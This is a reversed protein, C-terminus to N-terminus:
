QRWWAPEDVADFAGACGATGAAAAVCFDGTFAAVIRAAIPIERSAAAAIRLFYSKKTKAFYLFVYLVPEGSQTTYLGPVTFRVVPFHHYSIICFYALIRSMRPIIATM